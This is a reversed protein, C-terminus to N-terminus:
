RMKRWDPLGKHTARTAAAPSFAEPDVEGGVWELVEYHQEHAPNEIAQLFDVYGWVGSV